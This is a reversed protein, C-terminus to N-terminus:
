RRKEEEIREQLNRREAEERQRAINELHERFLSNAHDVYSDFHKLVSRAEAEIRHTHLAVVAEKKDFKWNAPEAGAVFSGVRQQTYVRLWDPPPEDNLIAIIVNGRIDTGVRKVPNGIFADTVTASPVVTQKLADLKQRSLFENGRAIINPKIQDISGLRNEPAQQAMQEIIPDLYAFQPAVERIQRYGAGQLVQGTFMENLILGLAYIDARRDVRAGEQRQEPAAYRFNALQDAPRTRVTTHMQDSTFHAIGFDTILLKDRATDHLINEPKLDRHWVGKLHAAEVGDLIDAFYRMVKEPPLGSKLLKRLTSSHVTMVYFPCKTQGQMVYGNDIVQVVNPHAFDRCFNLENLFRKTRETTVKEPKLCKLAWKKGGSDIVRLVRATGGEGEIGEAAYTEGTTEFVSPTQGLLNPKPAPASPPSDAGARNILEQKWASAVDDFELLRASTPLNLTLTENGPSANWNYVYTPFDTVFLMGVRICELSATQDITQCAKLIDDQNCMKEGYREYIVRLGKLVLTTCQEVPRRSNSDEFELARFRPFYKPGIDQVYRNRVAEELLSHKKGLRTRALHVPTGERLTIWRDTIQRVANVLDRDPVKQSM